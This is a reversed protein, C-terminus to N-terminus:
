DHGYECVHYAHCSTTKIACRQAVDINLELPIVTDRRFSSPIVMCTEVTTAYDVLLKECKTEMTAFAECMARSGLAPLIM